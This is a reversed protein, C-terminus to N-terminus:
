VALWNFTRAKPVGKIDATFVIFETGTVGTVTIFGFNSGSITAVVLPVKDPFAPNFTITASYQNVNNLATISSGHQIYSGPEGAPGTEGTSGTNGVQSWFGSTTPDTGAAATYTLVYAVGNFDIGDNLNYTTGSSYPGTWIITAGLGM